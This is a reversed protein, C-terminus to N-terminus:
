PESGTVLSLFRSSGNSLFTRIAQKLVDFAPTYNFRKQMARQLLLEIQRHGRETACFLLKDWSNYTYVSQGPDAGQDLLLKVIEANGAFVAMHIPFQYWFQANVLRQDKALLVKVKTMDGLACAKFLAWADYGNLKEVGYVYTKTKMEQPQTMRPASPARPKRHSTQITMLM